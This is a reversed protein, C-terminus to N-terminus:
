QAIRLFRSVLAFLEEFPVREHREVVVSSAQSEPPAPAELEVCYTGPPMRWTTIYVLPRDEGPRSLGVACRDAEWHDNVRVNTAGSRAILRQVVDVVAPDKDLEKM